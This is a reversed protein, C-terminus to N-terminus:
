PSHPVSRSDALFGRVRLPFFLLDSSFPRLPKRKLAFLIRKFLRLKQDNIMVKETLKSILAEGGTFLLM